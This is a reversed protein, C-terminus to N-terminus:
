SETSVKGLELQLFSSGLYKRKYIFRHDLFNIDHSNGRTAEGINATLIIGM